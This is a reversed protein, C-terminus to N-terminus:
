RICTCHIGFHAEKITTAGIATVLDPACSKLVPNLAKETQDGLDYRYPAAPTPPARVCKASFSQRERRKMQIRMGLSLRLGDNCEFSVYLGIFGRHIHLGALASTLVV